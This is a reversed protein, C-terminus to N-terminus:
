SVYVDDENASTAEYHTPSTPGQLRDDVVSTGRDSKVAEMEIGEHNAATYAVATDYANDGGITPIWWKWTCLVGILLIVGGIVAFIIGYEKAGLKKTEPGSVVPVQCLGGRSCEGGDCDAKTSCHLGATCKKTCNGGCDVDTENNTSTKVGDECPTCLLNPKLTMNIKGCNDTLPAWYDKFTGAAVFLALCPNKALEVIIPCCTPCYTQASSQSSAAVCNLCWAAFQNNTFPLTASACKGCNNQCSGNIYYLPPTGACTCSRNTGDFAV